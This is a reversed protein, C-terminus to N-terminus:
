FGGEPVGRFQQQSPVSNNQRRNPNLDVLPGRPRGGQTRAAGISVNQGTYTSLIRNLQAVASGSNLDVTEETVYTIDGKSNLQPVRVTLTNGEYEVQAPSGDIGPTVIGVLDDVAWQEGQILAEIHQQRYTAERQADTGGGSSQRPARDRYSAVDFVGMLEDSSQMVEAAVAEELSMGPYKGTFFARWAPDASVRDLIALSATDQDVQFRERIQTGANAGSGIRRQEQEGVGTRKENSVLDKFLENIQGPVKSTNVQRTFIPNGTIVESDKLRSTPTNLLRNLEPVAKDSYNEPNYGQQFKSYEESRGKSRGILYNLDGIAANAESLKKAYEQMNGQQRAVQADVMVGRVTEYKGMVDQYDSPLIGSPNIKAATQQMDAYLKDARQKEAKAEEQAKQQNAILINGIGQLYNTLVIDGGGQYNPRGNAM